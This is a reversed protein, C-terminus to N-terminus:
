IPAIPIRQSFLFDVCYREWLRWALKIWTEPFNFRYM